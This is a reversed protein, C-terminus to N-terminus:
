ENKLVEAPNTRAAKLTQSGIMLFAIMLVGGLGLFLESVSVPTHYPFSTLLVGEFFFYTAPLAIAASLCLLMVFGRSLLLVLNGSSAGMVKRISVEKLRAETTFVVMGFLGMSAITIALFSLFGIVKIMASFENYAHEISEKYFKANLVHVRDHKKWISEIKDMTAIPDSSNIKLNIYGSSEDVWYTFMVPDIPDDVKGYHFDKLVGVITLRKGDVIMEEGVAKVPDNGAIEFKRVVNENIIVESKADKTAPRAIFNGGAVFKYDHLPFFNEDVINFWVLASDGKEKYKVNGGWRNGVSSVMLSKSISEVEPLEQFEKVLNEAKNGQLKVNIINETKFGLDFALFTKYQSQGLITATIFILTLTYQVVVLIRRMSVHKFIKVSSSDRLAQIINIRSFFLSPLFGALVGVSTSFIIFAVVMQPTLELRVIDQLEPAMDTLENRLFLFMMFSILLALSSIIVAEFLFQHRVQRAGAGIVKRLGVEKFRRMSRAMSLNTYNFCASLIVILALAGIIYVISIPINPGIANSLDPGLVIDYLSQLEFERYVKEDAANETKCIEDIQSQIQALSTGESVVIYFYNSWVSSWSLFRRDDKKQLEITSFSVLAEFRMHSFKSIDKLVGTVQYELTDFTITKGLAEEDGFLKKASQETLVISYPASLATGPDGQVMPFTFVKLFSPQAWLGSVPLVNEGTVADGSFGERMIVSEEIGSVREQILMGAKVSTSAFLNTQERDKNPWTNVRYIRAGNEHFRDYSVLDHVFAILLLGVSMSVALGFINIFSFLKNRLVNRGSTKIYSGIMIWNFLPNVFKPKRVTYTRFFKLADLAYIMRARRVGIREVNREFYENLDGLLDEALSPKCYWEIFRQAWRPPHYGKKEVTNNARSYRHLIQM